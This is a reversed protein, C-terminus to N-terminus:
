CIHHNRNGRRLNLRSVINPLRKLADCGIHGLRRHWLKLTDDNYSSSTVLNARKLLLQLPYQGRQKVSHLMQNGNQALVDCSDDKFVVSAGSSTLKVVSILGTSLEPVHLADRMIINTETDNPLPTDVQIIGSGIAQIVDGNATIVSKSTSLKNYEIFHGKHPTMHEIAGSDM